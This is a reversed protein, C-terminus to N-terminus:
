AERPANRAALANTIFASVKRHCEKAERIGDLFAFNHPMREWLLLDTEVGALRAKEVARLTDNLLVESTSVHFSLPPLGRWTGLLPSVAAIAADYNQIYNQAIWPWIAEDVMCDERLNVAATQGIETLDTPASLLVAAVPLSKGQDRMQMMAALALNAGASHGLVVVGSGAEVNMCLNSLVAVCDELGAPFPHEPALRYPVLIVSLGTLNSIHRCFRRDTREGRVCFAGGHLFVVLSRAETTRQRIREVNVGNIRDRLVTPAQRGVSALWDLLRFRDRVTVISASKKWLPKIVFRLTASAIRLSPM